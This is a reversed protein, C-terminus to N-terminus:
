QLPNQQGAIAPNANMETQPILFQWRVDGAPIDFVTCLAAQHNAGNRNLPQNLRKLDLFRFGEGWFEIRRQLLIENILAAGTNTSKVYSPDRTVEMTYLATAAGANDGLQAKAEADILYMEAARMYPVDGRSDSSSVALFKINMYKAKTFTSLPVTFATGTPDWLKKRVDTASIANYLTSNIAKPNGRINTSSYNESMYAFFSYFYLTQDPQVYSGWIWEPNTYDNFGMQYTTTNMLSITLADGTIPTRALIAWKSANTWDQQTLCVRAKLGEAVNLNLHSRNARKSTQMLGIAADLDANIQTYVDEVTNRPLGATTNTTMIPVGLQTNPKKTADYRSGFIQVLQFHAWARYALAEGKILKKDDPGTAADINNIIMNANAIIIYYFRYVFYNFASNANRHDTWQYQTNFWGNGASTMVLDEGLMDMDIMICGEGGENQNSYQSYMARHIGNLAELANATTTFASTQSVGTTPTTNLYDKKCAGMFILVIVSIAIKYFIRRM